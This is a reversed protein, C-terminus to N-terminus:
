RKIGDATAISPSVYIRKLENDCLECFEQRDSKSMPKDITTEKGCYPCKYDYKM